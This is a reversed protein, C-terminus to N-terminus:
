KKTKGDNEQLRYKRETIFKMVKTYRQEGGWSYTRQLVRANGHLIAIGKECDVLVLNETGYNNKAYVVAHVRNQFLFSTVTRGSEPNGFNTYHTTPTKMTTM